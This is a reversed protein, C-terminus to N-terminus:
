ELNKWCSIGQKRIQLIAWLLIIALWGTFISTFGNITFIFQSLLNSSLFLWFGWKRWKLVVFLSVVASIDIIALLVTILVNANTRILTLANSLAFLAFLIIMFWIYATVLVNRRKSVDNIREM